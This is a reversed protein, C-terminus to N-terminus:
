AGGGERGGLGTKFLAVQREYGGGRLYYLVAKQEAEPVNMSHVLARQDHKCAVARARPHSLRGTSPTELLEQRSM